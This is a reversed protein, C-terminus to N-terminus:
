RKLLKYVAGLTEPDRLAKLISLFKEKQEKTKGALAARLQGELKLDANTSKSHEVESFLGGASVNLSRSIKLITGLSPSKKGNEIYNLFGGDIGAMEALQSITLGARKRLTRIKAGVASVSSNEM